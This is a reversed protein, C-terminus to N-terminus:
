YIVKITLWCNYKDLLNFNAKLVLLSMNSKVLTFMYKDLQKMKGFGRFNELCVEYYSALVEHADSIM